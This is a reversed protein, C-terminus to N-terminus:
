LYDMRLYIKAGTCLPWTTNRGIVESRSFVESRRNQDNNNLREDITELCCSDHLTIKKPQINKSFPIYDECTLFLDHKKDQEFDQAIFSLIITSTLFLLHNIKVRTNLETESVGYCERGKEYSSNM